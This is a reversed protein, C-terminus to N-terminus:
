AKVLHKEIEDVSQETMDKGVEAVLAEKTSHDLHPRLLGLFSPNAMLYLRSFSQKRKEETLREGLLRAFKLLEVHHPDVHAEYASRATGVSEFTRGAQDSVLDQNRLRSAPHEFVEFEEIKPFKVVRFFKANSGNAIVVWTTQQSM